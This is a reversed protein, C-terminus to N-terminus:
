HFIVQPDVMYLMRVQVQVQERLNIYKRNERAERHVTSKGIIGNATSVAYWMCCILAIRLFDKVAKWRMKFGKTESLM